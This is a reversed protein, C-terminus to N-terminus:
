QWKRTLISASWDDEIAFKHFAQWLIEFFVKGSTVNGLNDKKSAEWLSNWTGIDNWGVNLPLVYGFKTKQMISIDFSIDDM